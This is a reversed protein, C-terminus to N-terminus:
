IVKGTGNHLEDVLLASMQVPIKEKHTKSNLDKGTNYKYKEM